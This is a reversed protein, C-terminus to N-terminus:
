LFANLAVKDYGVNEFYDFTHTHIINVVNVAHQMHLCRVQSYVGFAYHVRM